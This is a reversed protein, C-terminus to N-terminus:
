ILSSGLNAHQYFDNRSVKNCSNKNFSVLKGYQTDQCSNLDQCSKINHFDNNVNQRIELKTYKNPNAKKKSVM